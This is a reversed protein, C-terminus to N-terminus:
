SPETPPPARHPQFLLRQYVLGIGILVLGLTIFSLARWLGTLGQLDFLFVKLVALLVLAASALRAPKSRLLVGYALFAIGLMLWAASYAWHEADGTSRWIMILPGQFTHRVELTIFALLLFVALAAVMNVFWDLRTERAARAVLVAMVGPLLYALALSSIWPQGIIAQREFLPNEAIGLGLFAAAAAVVGFIISAIRFVPNARTLDLRALVYSFGLSATTQLGLEIHGSAAHLPDGAYLLHRIQYSVLLAAFLVGLADSLRVSIDDTRTRLIRAALTFCIAPVGYGFLLWNLLPWKGVETGMIRPDIFVRILVIGGLAVVAYRLLPIDRRVAVFATGLAALAFAVTLYGRDLACTLAVAMAAISAAALAGTGM